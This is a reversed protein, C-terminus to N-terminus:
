SRGGAPSAGEWFRDGCIWVIAFVVFLLAGVPQVSMVYISKKLGLFSNIGLGLLLVVYASIIIGRMWPPFRSELSEVLAFVVAPALMVYTASETAPGCLLMWTSVPSFIAMLVREEPWRWRFRGLVALVAIAAGSLAQFAMYAREPVPVHLMKLVMWLDRPAIDIQYQLRNDAGRTAVWLQYQSWVYMPRQLIFSLGALGALALVFRWSFSKPYTVMLVLGMAVPYIKFFVSVAVCIAALTMWGRRVSVIACLLLGIVLPNVQGNSFNGISLPLLLLFVLPVSWEKATPLLREELSWAVAGLYAAVSAALWLLMSLGLPLWALPAFIAAVLPSYVYGRSGKYLPAGELWHQGAGLYTSVVSHGKGFFVGRVLVVVILIAWLVTVVKAFRRGSNKVAM